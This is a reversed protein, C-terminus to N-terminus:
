MNEVFKLFIEFQEKVFVDNARNWAKRSSLRIKATLKTKIKM